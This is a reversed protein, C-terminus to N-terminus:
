NFKISKLINMLETESKDSSFTIIFNLAFGKMITSYYKQTIKIGAINRKLVLVSFERNAIKETYIEKPISVKMKATKIFKQMQHQYDKGNKISMFPTIVEIMCIFSPNFSVPTKLPYKFVTLLNETKLQSMAIERELIKNDGAVTERGIDVMEERMKKNQLHWHSPIKISLGFYNNKYISNKVVGLLDFKTPHKKGSKNPEEEGCGSMFVLCVLVFFILKNKLKKTKM